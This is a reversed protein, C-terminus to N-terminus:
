DNEKLAVFGDVGYKNRKDYKEFESIEPTFIIVNEKENYYVGCMETECCEWGSDSLLHVDKPINYKDILNNLKEFTMIKEESM